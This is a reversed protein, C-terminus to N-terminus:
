RVIWVAHARGIVRDKSVAGFYRGDYSNHAGNLVLYEGANLTRCGHWKPLSRGLADASAAIAVLRRQVTVISGVRCVRDSGIAAVHKLLYASAPLYGRRDALRSIETPLKVLALDGRIPARADIRYLGIPVSNSANWVLRPTRQLCPAGIAAVAAAAVLMIPRM